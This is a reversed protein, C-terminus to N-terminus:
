GARSKKRSPTERFGLLFLEALKAPCDVLFEGTRRVGHVVHTRHSIITGTGRCSECSHPNPKNM